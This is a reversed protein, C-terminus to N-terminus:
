RCAAPAHTYSCYVYASFRPPPQQAGKPPAPHGDLAIDGPGLGVKTGLPMMIWGATEGCRVHESFEPPPYSHGKLPPSSPGWRNDALLLHTNNLATPWLGLM